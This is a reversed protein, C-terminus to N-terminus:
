GRDSLRGGSQGRANGDAAASRDSQAAPEAGLAALCRDGRGRGSGPIRECEDDRRGTANRANYSRACRTLELALVSGCLECVVGPLLCRVRATTPSRFRPRTLSTSNERHGRHAIHVRHSGQLTELGAEKAAQLRRKVQSLSSIAIRIRVFSQNFSVRNQFSNVLDQQAEPDFYKRPQNPDTQLDACPIEYLNGKTNTLQIQDHSLKKRENNNSTLTPQTFSKSFDRFNQDFIQRM